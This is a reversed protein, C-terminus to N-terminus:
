DYFEATSQYLFFNKRKYELIISKLYYVNRRHKIFKPGEGKSRWNQLTGPSYNLESAAQGTTLFESMDFNSIETEQKMDSGEKMTKLLM